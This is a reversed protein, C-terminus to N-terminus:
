LYERRYDEATKLTKGHTSSYALAVATFIHRSSNAKIAGVARQELYDEFEENFLYESMKKLASRTQKDSLMTM